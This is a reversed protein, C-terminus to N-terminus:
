IMEEAEAGIPFFLAGEEHLRLAAQVINERATQVRKMPIASSISIEEVLDESRRKSLNKLFHDLLTRETGRLATILDGADIDKMLTQMGRRDLAVLDTFQVMKKRIAEALGKDEAAIRALLPEYANRGMRCLVRATQEIGQFRLRNVLGSGLADRLSLEVDRATKADVSKMKAMRRTCEYQEKELMLSMIKSANDAGMMLLAAARAQPHEDRLIIAVASPLCSAIFVEFGDDIERQVANEVAERKDESVLSSLQNLAFDKGSHPLHVVDSLDRVFHAVIEEIVSPQLRELRKMAIGIQTVEGTSLRSLLGAAVRPHVFMMLAASREPGSLDQLTLPSQVLASTAVDLIGILGHAQQRV